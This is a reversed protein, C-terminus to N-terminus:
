PLITSDIEFYTLAPNNGGSVVAAVILTDGRAAVAVRQRHSLLVRAVPRPAQPHERYRVVTPDGFVARLERVRDPGFVHVAVLPRIQHEVGVFVQRIGVIRPV